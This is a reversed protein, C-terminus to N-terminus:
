QQETKRRPSKVTWVSLGKMRTIKELTGMGDMIMGPVNDNGIVADDPFTKMEFRGCRAPLMRDECGQEEM